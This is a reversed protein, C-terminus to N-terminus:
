CYYRAPSSCSDFTFLLLVVVRGVVLYDILCCYSKKQLINHNSQWTALVNVIQM